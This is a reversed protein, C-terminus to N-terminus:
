LGIREKVTKIQRRSVYDCYGGELTVMLAGGISTDFRKIKRINVMCSQNIKVFDASFAEELQYLRLKLQLKERETVAYVRGGEVCFCLVEDPNLKIARSGDFGYLEANERLILEEIREVLRNKEPASILLEESHPEIVIRYKM